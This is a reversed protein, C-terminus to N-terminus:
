ILVGSMHKVKVQKAVQKFNKLRGYKNFVVKEAIKTYMLPLYFRLYLESIFVM